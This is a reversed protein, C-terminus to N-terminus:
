NEAEALKSYFYDDFIKNRPISYGMCFQKIVGESNIFFATPYGYVKFTESSGKCSRPIFRVPNEPCDAIIDFALTDIGLKRKFKRYRKSHYARLDRLDKEAADGLLLIQYKEKPYRKSIENLISLEQYCPGCGFSFFSLITIKGLFYTSDIHKGDITTNQYPPVKKNVLQQIRETLTDSQSKVSITIFIFFFIQTLRNM